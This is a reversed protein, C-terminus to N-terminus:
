LFQAQWNEALPGEYQRHHQKAPAQHMSTGSVKGHKGTPKWLLYGDPSQGVYSRGSEKLLRDLVPFPNIVDSCFRVFNRNGVQFISLTELRRFRSKRESAAKLVIEALQHPTEKARIQVAFFTSLESMM